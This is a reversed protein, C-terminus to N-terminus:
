AANSNPVGDRTRSGRKTDPVPVALLLLDLQPVIHPQDPGRLVQSSVDLSVLLLNRPQKLAIMLALPPSFVDNFSFWTLRPYTMFYLEKNEGSSSSTFSHRGCGTCTYIDYAIRIRIWQYM